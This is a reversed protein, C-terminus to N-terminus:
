GVVLEVNQTSVRHHEYSAEVDQLNKLNGDPSTLDYAIGSGIVAGIVESAILGGCMIRKGRGM